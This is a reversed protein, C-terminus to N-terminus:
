LHRNRYVRPSVGFREGFRRTFHPPSNFGWSLAIATISSGRWKPDALQRACEELRRRMIYGSPAEDGAAFIMRMYRTSIKLRSAIAAPNLKPDRLNEEVFLKIRWHHASMISTEAAMKEPCMAFASSLVDLFNRAAKERYREDLGDNMEGILALAMAGATAALGENSSLRSGCLNRYIPLYKRIESEPVRFRISESNQLYCRTYPTLNDYLTFDGAELVIERGCHSFQSRGKVQMIFTLAHDSARSIESKTRHLSGRGCVIHIAQIPGLKNVEVLPEIGTTDFPVARFPELRTVYNAAERGTMRAPRADAAQVCLM